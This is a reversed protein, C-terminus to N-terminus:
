AAKVQDGCVRDLIGMAEEIHSDEIILPPVMRVVNDAAAVTLLGHERLRAVVERRRLPYQASRTLVSDM